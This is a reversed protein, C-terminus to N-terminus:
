SPSPTGQFLLLHCTQGDAVWVSSCRTVGHRAGGALRIDATMRFQVVAIPGDTVVSQDDIDIADYSFDGAALKALYSQGTDVAGTSHIYTCSPAFLGELTAVDRALMAGIRRRELEVVDSESVNQSM